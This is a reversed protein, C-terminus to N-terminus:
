MQVESSKSHSSDKYDIMVFSSEYLVINSKSTHWKYIKTSVTPIHSVDAEGYFHNYKDVILEAIDHSNLKSKDSPFLTINVAYLKNDDFSYSEITDLNSINEFQNGIRLFSDGSQNSKSDADEPYNKQISEFSTGWKYGNYYGPHLFRQVSAYLLTFCLIGLLVVLFFRIRKKIRVIQSSLLESRIAEIPCGCNPCQTANSSVNQNCDPCKILAM